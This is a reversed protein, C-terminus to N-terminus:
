LFDEISLQKNKLQVVKDVWGVTKSYKFKDCMLDEEKGLEVFEAWLKPYCKAMFMYEGWKANPCFWCGERDVYLYLPSLLGYKECLAKARYETYGEEALVSRKNPKDKLRELRLPEDVGIGVIEEIDKGKFFRRMPRMKLRDNIGCRGSLPFGYRRGANKGKRIVKHFLTLYDEKDRLITVDYGFDKKIKPIACDRIWKVHIPNEGSINRSHDYMVEVMVVGDVKIGKEHCLIISAMSDKGGSWSIWREM